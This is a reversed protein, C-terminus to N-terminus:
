CRKMYKNAMQIDEKSFHRNQELPPPWEWYIKLGIKQQHAPSHERGTIQGSAFSHHLYYLYHGGGDLPGICVSSCETGGVRCCAVASGCSQWLSRSVRPCTQTLVEHPWQEKRRARPTYLTKNTGELLRNGWDKPLETILDWQGGFDYKSPTGIM